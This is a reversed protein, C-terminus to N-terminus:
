KTVFEIWYKPTGNIGMEFFTGQSGVKCEPVDLYILSFTANEKEYLKAMDVYFDDINNSEIKEDSNWLAITFMLGGAIGSAVILYFIFLLKM